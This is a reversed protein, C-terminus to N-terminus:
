RVMAEYQQMSMDDGGYFDDNKQASADDVVVLARGRLFFDQM